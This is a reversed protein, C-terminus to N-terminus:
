VAIRYVVGDSNSLCSVSWNPPREPHCQSLSQLHALALREHHRRLQHLRDLQQLERVQIQGGVDFPLEFLVRQELAGGFALRAHDIAGGLRDGRLEVALAIRGHVDAAGRVADVFAQLGAAARDLLPEAGIEFVFKGVIRALGARPGTRIRGRGRRVPGTDAAAAALVAIVIQLGEHRGRRREGIMQGPLQRQRDDIRDPPHDPLVQDVHDVLGAVEGAIERRHGVLEARRRGFDLRHEVDHLAEIRRAHARAIEGFAQRDLELLAVAEIRRHRRQDAAEIQQGLAVQCPKRRM